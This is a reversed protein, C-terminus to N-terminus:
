LGWVNANQLTVTEWIVFLPFSILTREQQKKLGEEFADYTKRQELTQGEAYEKTQSYDYYLEKIKSM